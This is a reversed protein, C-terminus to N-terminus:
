FCGFRPCLSFIQPPSNRPLQLLTNLTKTFQSSYILSPSSSWSLTKEYGTLCTLTLRGLLHMTIIIDSFTLFFVQSKIENDTFPDEETKREKKVSIEMFIFRTFCPHFVSAPPCVHIDLFPFCPSISLCNIFQFWKSVM